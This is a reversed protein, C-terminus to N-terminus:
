LSHWCNRALKHNNKLIRLIFFLVRPVREFSIHFNLWLHLIKCLTVNQLSLTRIVDMDLSSAHSMDLAIRVLLTTCAGCMVAALHCVCARSVSPMFVNDGAELPRNLKYGRLYTWAMYYGWMHILNLSQVCRFVLNLIIESLHLVHRDHPLSLCLVHFGYM